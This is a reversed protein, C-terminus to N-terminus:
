PMCPPDALHGVERLDSLKFSAEDRPRQMRQPLPSDVDNDNKPLLHPQQSGNVHALVPPLTLDPSGISCTIIASAHQRGAAGCVFFVQPQPPIRPPSAIGGNDLRMELKWELRGPAPESM